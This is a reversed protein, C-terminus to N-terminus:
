EGFIKAGDSLIKEKSNSIQADGVKEIRKAIVRIFQTGEDDAFDHLYVRRDKVSQAITEFFPVFGLHQIEVSLREFLSKEIKEVVSLDEYSTISNYVIWPNFKQCDKQAKEAAALDIDAIKDIIIQVSINEEEVSIKYLDTLMKKALTGKAISKDIIRFYFNKLFVMLNMISPFEPTTILLGTRSVGFFDLTNFNSGAGLDLLIYDVKFKRLNRLIKLKQAYLINAMFPAQGDGAIFFLKEHITEQILDKLEVNKVKLFDGMGHHKNPLGLFSHLNSGGLDLDIVLVSHGLQSLAIALNATIFSKGTGGKGGAVPIIKARTSM